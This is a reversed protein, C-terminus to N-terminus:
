SLDFLSRNAILVSSEFPKNKDFTLDYIQTIESGEGQTSSEILTQKDLKLQFIEKWETIGAILPPSVNSALRVLFTRVSPGVDMSVWISDLLALEQWFQDHTIRSFNADKLHM